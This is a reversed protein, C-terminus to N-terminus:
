PRETPRTYLDRMWALEERDESPTLQTPAWEGPAPLPGHDREMRESHLRLEDFASRSGSGGPYGTSIVCPAQNM